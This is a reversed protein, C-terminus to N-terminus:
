GGRKIIKWLLFYWSRPMVQLLKFIFVAFFPFGASSKQREMANIIIRSAKEATMWTLINPQANPKSLETIVFYPFVQLIKINTAQLDIKFSELLATLAAKSACYPGAGPIGRYAALSSVAVILGRKRKQMQELARILIKVHSLFNVNFINRIEEYEANQAYSRNGIGANFIICDYNFRNDDLWRIIGDAADDETIDKVMHYYNGKESEEERHKSVGFVRLKKKLMEKKLAGGIGGGSGLILIDKISLELRKM